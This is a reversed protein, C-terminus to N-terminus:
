AGIAIRITELVGDINQTVENNWFRLVKIGHDNLYMTRNNDYDIKEAHQGGDIEIALHKERCFFDLIYPGVGYQRKFKIGFFRKARIQNWLLSEATTQNHRLDRRYPLSQSRNIIESM